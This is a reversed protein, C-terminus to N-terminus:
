PSEQRREKLYQRWASYNACSLVYPRCIKKLQNMLHNETEVCEELEDVRRCQEPFLEYRRALQNHMLWILALVSNSNGQGDEPVVGNLQDWYGQYEVDISPADLRLMKRNIEENIKSTEKRAVEYKEQHIFLEKEGRWKAYWERLYLFALRFLLLCLFCGLGKLIILEGM